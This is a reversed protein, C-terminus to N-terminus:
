KKLTVFSNSTEYLVLKELEVAEPLKTSLITWFIHVLSEATTIVDPFVDNLYRHDCIDIINEKVAKKLDTFNIVMGDAQVEGSITVELKYTHGHLNRCKGYLEKDPLKHAAEFEFKKTIYM